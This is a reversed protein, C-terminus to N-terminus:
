RALLERLLQEQAMFATSPQLQNALQEMHNNCHDIISSLKTSREPVKQGGEGEQQRESKKKEKEKGAGTKPEKKEERSRSSEVKKSSLAPLKSRRLGFWNALSPATKQRPESSAVKDQEQSRQAKEKIGMM